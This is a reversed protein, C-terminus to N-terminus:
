AQSLPSKVEQYGPSSIEKPKPADKRFLAEIEELIMGTTEPCLYYVFVFSIAVCATFMFFVGDINLIPFLKVIWTQAVGMGWNGVTSISVAKARVHLPFIEACYIWPTPGWCVAFSFVFFATGVVILYGAATPCGANDVNGDCSTRFIIASFLHGIIMGIAGILLLKRRGITDVWRMAPITSIMNIGSLLLVSYEGAGTVDKFILGGYNFIANIGTAQQFVQLMFGIMVRRLVSPELLDTWSAASLEEQAVQIGILELEHDVNEAQRLRKLVSEAEEKGKHLYTWRPSEPVCFIGAMVIVPPLLAVANTYRWGEDVNMIAINVVNSLFLGITVTLQMMGSLMGRYEKPAMEAGFIPLSFSSNGVGLGQIFRAIYVLEHHMAPNLCLWLTGICFFVGASFIAMRRGFKDAIFGSALAGFVCGLTYAMVYWLTYTTWEDPLNSTSATCQEYTFNHWGVCWDELFNDMILVASTVGQDYGFFIGGLSAFLCVIIAYTRSGEMPKDDVDYNATIVAGGAM